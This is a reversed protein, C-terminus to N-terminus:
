ASKQKDRLAFFGDVPFNYTKSVRVCPPSTFWGFAFLKQAKSM